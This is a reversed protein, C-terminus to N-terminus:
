PGEIISTLSNKIKQNLLQKVKVVLYIDGLLLSISYAVAGGIAGYLPIFLYSLIGVVILRAINVFADIEPHMLTHLLMSILGMFISAALSTSTIWFVILANSYHKGLFAVQVLSLLIIGTIVLFAYYPLTKKLRIFHQNIDTIKDMETVYPFFVTKVAYNLTIFAVTFVLGASFYGLEKQTSLTGLIFQVIRYNFSYCIGSIVVWKSYNLSQILISKIETFAPVGSAFLYGAYLILGMATVVISPLTYISGLANIPLLTAGSTLLMIAFFFIRVLGYLTIFSALKSFQKLSQILNQLYMWLSLIGGSAVALIFLTKQGYTLRFLKTLQTGLPIALVCLAIMIIFKVLLLTTFLQNQKKRSNSYLNFFRVMTLNFGMDSLMYVIMMISVSLSFIGFTEPGFKKALFIEAIFTFLNNFANAILVMTISFFMPYKLSVNNISNKVFDYLLM